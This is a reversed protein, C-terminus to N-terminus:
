VFDRVKFFVVTNYSHLISDLKPEHCCLEWEGSASTDDTWSIVDGVQFIDPVDDTSSVEIGNVSFRDQSEIRSFNRTLSVAATRLIKIECKSIM